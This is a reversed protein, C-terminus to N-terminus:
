ISDYINENKPKNLPEANIIFLITIVLMANITTFILFYVTMLLSFSVNEVSSM